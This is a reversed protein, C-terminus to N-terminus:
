QKYQESHHHNPPKGPDSSTAQGIEILAAFAAAESLHGTYKLGLKKSERAVFDLAMHIGCVKEQLSEGDSFVFDKGYPPKM